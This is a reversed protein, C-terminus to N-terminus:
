LLVLPFWWLMILEIVEWKYNYPNYNFSTHAHPRTCSTSKVTQIRWLFTAVMTVWSQLHLIYSRSETKSISSLYLATYQLINSLQWLLQWHEALIHVQPHYLIHPNNSSTYFLHPRMCWCVEDVVSHGLNTHPHPFSRKVRKKKKRLM